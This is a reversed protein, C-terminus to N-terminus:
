QTLHKDPPRISSPQEVKILGSMLRLPWGGAEDPKTCYFLWPILNSRLFLKGHQSRYGNRFQIGMDKKLENKNILSFFMM